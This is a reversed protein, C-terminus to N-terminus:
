KNLTSLNISIASFCIGTCITSFFTGYMSSFPTATFGSVGFAYLNSSIINPIIAFDKISLKTVDSPLTIGREAIDCISMCQKYKIKPNKNRTPEVQYSVFIEVDFDEYDQLLFEHVMEKYKKYEELNEYDFDSGYLASYFTKFGRMLYQGDRGISNIM